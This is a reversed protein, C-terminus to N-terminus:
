PAKCLTCMKTNTRHRSVSDSPIDRSPGAHMARSETLSTIEELLSDLALSIEPRISALTKYRLEAAYKQKVLSPLAPNILNLWLVVITNEITPTIEEAETITSGHHTIGSDPGLLNDHYFALLRQYLDEPREEPDVHIAALDLFHAGSLQFGFHLRIASWIFKLSTSSRVITGRSIIPCFNAIQGLMLELQVVKQEPTRRKSETVTSPDGALGRNPNHTSKALWTADDKLFCSFCEDLSLIYLLNQRWAEFSNITEHKM